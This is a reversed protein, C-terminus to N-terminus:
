RRPLTSRLAAAAGPGVEAQGVGLPRPAAAPTTAALAAAPFALVAIALLAIQTRKMLLRQVTAPLQDTQHTAAIVCRSEMWYGPMIEVRPRGGSM